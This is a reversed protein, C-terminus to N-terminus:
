NINKKSLNLQKSYNANTDNKFCKKLQIRQFHLFAESEIKLKNTDVHVGM